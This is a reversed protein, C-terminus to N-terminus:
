EDNTRHRQPGVDTAPTECTCRRRARVGGDHAEQERREVVRHPRHGDRTHRREHDREHAKAEQLDPADRRPGDHQECRTGAVQQEFVLGTETIEVIRLEEFSDGTQYRTGDIVVARTQAAHTRM